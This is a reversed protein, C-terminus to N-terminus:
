EGPVMLNKDTSQVVADVRGVRCAENILHCCRTSQLGYANNVVLPVGLRQALRAVAPVDDPVRPAFTSTTLAICAVSDPGGCREQIAAEIADVDTCLEDGVLRNEVVVATLGATTLAKYCSKQDCRQWVAFKASPRDQRLKLLVMSFSMGTALPMIVCAKLNRVGCVTRMYDLVLANALKLILSSGAAKPQQEAIDGSRGIGHSLRFHRRAVMGCAVRGEREGVGVNDLFNNSDMRSLERLVDEILGDDWGTTPITRSALLDRMRRQVSRLSAMGSDVYTASIVQAALEANKDDM